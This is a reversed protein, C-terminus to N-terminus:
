ADGGPYYIGDDWDDSPISHAWDYSDLTEPEPNENPNQM